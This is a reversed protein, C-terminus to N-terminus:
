ESQDSSDAGTLDTVEWPNIGVFNCEIAAQFRIAKEFIPTAARHDRFAIKKATRCVEIRAQFSEKRDGPFSKETPKLPRATQDGFATERPPKGDPYGILEYVSTVLGKRFGCERNVDTMLLDDFAASHARYVVQAVCSQASYCGPRTLKSLRARCEAYAKETQAFEASESPPSDPQATLRAGLSMAEKASGRMSRDLPQSFEVEKECPAEGWAVPSPLLSTAAMWLISMSILSQKGSQCKRKM